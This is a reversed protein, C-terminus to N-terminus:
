RSSSMMGDLLLEDHAWARADDEDEFERVGQVVDDLYWVVFNVPRAPALVCHLVAGDSRTFRWLEEPAAMARHPLLLRAEVSEGSLPGVAAPLYCFGLGM